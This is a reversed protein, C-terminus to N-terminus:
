EEPSIKTSTTPKDLGLKQQWKRSYYADKINAILPEGTAPTRLFMKEGEIRDLVWVFGPSRAWSLHICQGIMDGLCEPPIPAYRKTWHELKKCASRAM